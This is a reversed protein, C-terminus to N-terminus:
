GGGSRQDQLRQLVTEPFVNRLLQECCEVEESIRAMRDEQSVLLKAHNRLNRRRRRNHQIGVQWQPTM